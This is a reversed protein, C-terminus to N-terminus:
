AKAVNLTIYRGQRAKKVLHTRLIQLAGFRLIKCVAAPAPHCM